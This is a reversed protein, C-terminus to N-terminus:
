SENRTYEHLLSLEHFVSNYYGAETVMGLIIFAGILVALTAARSKRETLGIFGFRGEKNNLHEAVQAHIQNSCNCSDGTVRVSCVGEYFTERAYNVMENNLCETPSSLM